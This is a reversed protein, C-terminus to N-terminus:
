PFEHMPLLALFRDFPLYIGAHLKELKSASFEKAEILRQKKQEFTLGAFERRRLAIIAQVAERFAHARSGFRDAQSLLWAVRQDFLESDATDLLLRSNIFIPAVRGDLKVWLASAPIPRKPICEWLSQDRSLILLAGHDALFAQRMSLTLPKITGDPLREECPIEGYAIRGKFADLASLNRHLMENRENSFEDIEPEDRVKSKNFAWACVMMAVLMVVISLIWPYVALDFIAGVVAAVAAMGSVYGSLGKVTALWRRRKRGRRAASAMADLVEQPFVQEIPTGAPQKLFAIFGDRIKVFEAPRLPLQEQM